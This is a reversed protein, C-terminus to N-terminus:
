NNSKMWHNLHFAFTKGDWNSVQFRPIAYKYMEAKFVHPDTTFGLEIGSEALIELTNQDRGGHPYALYKPADGTLSELLAICGQIESKQDDYSLNPLFPHSMTHAGITFMENSQLDLLERKDMTFYEPRVTANKAWVELMKIFTQQQSTEMNRIIECLRLYLNLPSIVNVNTSKGLNFSINDPQQLILKSPLVPSQLCIRELADWWFEEQKGIANTTIFFTAPINYKELLPKGTLYNDRYGDDFTVLITNPLMGNKKTLAYNLAEIPIVPYDKLVKLHEEFNEPSVSLKWPDSLTNAIRHYMLVVGPRAKKKVAASLSRLLM